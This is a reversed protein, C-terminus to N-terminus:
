FIIKQSAVLFLKQNSATKLSIFVDLRSKQKFNSATKLVELAAFM